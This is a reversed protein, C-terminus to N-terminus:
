YGVLPDCDQGLCIALVPHLEIANPAVGDQGHSSDFFAVGIVTGVGMSTDNTSPKFGDFAARAHTIECLLPTTTTTCTGATVCGPYPIEVIMTGGSGDTAIIHYDSDSELDHFELNVNQLEYVTTEIPSGRNCTGGNTIALADLQAITTLQPVMDISNVDDDTGTKVAWREVGCSGGNQQYNTAPTGCTVAGGTNGGTNGGSSSGTSTGTGSSSVGAGTSGGASTTGTGSSQAGTSGTGSSSTGASTSGEGTSGGSSGRAEGTTGAGEGGATTTGHEVLGFCKGENCVEGSPCDSTTECTGAPSQSCAAWTLGLGLALGLFAPKAPSM